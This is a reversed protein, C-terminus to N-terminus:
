ATGAAPYTAMAWDRQRQAAEFDGAQECLPALLYMAEDAKLRRFDDDTIGAARCQHCQCAKPPGSM